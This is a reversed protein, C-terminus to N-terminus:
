GGTITIDNPLPDGDIVDVDVRVSSTPVPTPEPVPRTGGGTNSSTPTTTPLPTSLPTVVPTPNTSIIATPEVTPNVVVPNTNPLVINCGADKIAKEKTISLPIDKSDIFVTCPKKTFIPSPVPFSPLDKVDEVKNPDIVPTISNNPLVIECGANKIAKETTSSLPLDKPNIFVTCSKRRIVTPPNTNPFDFGINNIQDSIPAVSPLIIQCGANKIIQEKLPSLPVDKQDIFVICPEKINEEKYEKLELEAKNLRNPIINVTTGGIALVKSSLDLAKATINKEGVPITDIIRTTFNRSLEFTIPTNLGKGKIQVLIIQTKEPVFKISFHTNDPFKVKTALYGYKTNEYSCAFFCMSIISIIISKKLINRNM